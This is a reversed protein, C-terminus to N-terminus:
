RPVPGIIKALLRVEVPVSETTSLLVKPTEFPFMVTLPISAAVPTLLVTLIMVFPLPPIAPVPEACAVFTFKVVPDPVMPVLKAVGNATAAVFTAGVVVPNALMVSEWDIVIVPLPILAALETCKNVVLLPSMKTCPCTPPLLLPMTVTLAPPLPLMVAM